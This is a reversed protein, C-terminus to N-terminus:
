VTLRINLLNFYDIYRRINPYKSLRKYERLTMVKQIISNTIFEYRAPEIRYMCSNQLYKYDHLDELLSPDGGRCVFGSGDFQQKIIGKDILRHILNFASVLSINLIRAVYRVSLYPKYSTPESKRNIPLATGQKGKIYTGLSDFKSQSNGKRELIKLYLLDKIENLTPHESVTIQNRKKDPANCKFTNIQWGNRDPQIYGLYHLKHLYKSITNISLGTLNSIRQKPKDRNSIHSHKFNLKLQYYFSIENIFGKSIASQIIKPNVTLTFKKEQKQQTELLNNLKVM